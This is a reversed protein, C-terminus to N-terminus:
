KFSTLNICYIVLPIDYIALESFLSRKFYEYRKYPDAELNLNAQHLSFFRLLVIILLPKQPSESIM